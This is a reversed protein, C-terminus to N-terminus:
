SAQRAVDLLDSLAADLRHLEAEGAPLGLRLWDPTHAFVRTWIGRRALGDHLTHATETRVLRFLSTGGIVELGRSALVQDLGDAADQLAARTRATWDRDSLALRGVEISPGSVAWPGLLDRLRRVTLPSGIAFGLRLGALGYFKGFSRLILVAPRHAEAVFSVEPHADAFAEDIVLLGGRTSLGEVLNTLTEQSYRAGDPNNPNVMVVVKAANADEVLTHGAAGWARAHESYTPGPIAVASSAVLRPVVQILAQTGPAAVIEAGDPVGYAARAAAELEAIAAKDPLRMLCDAPLEPLPYSNPNIGTSLDLWGEAPAGYRASAESLDGGHNM